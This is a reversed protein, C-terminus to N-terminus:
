ITHDNTNKDDTAWAWVRVQSEGSFTTCELKLKGGDDCDILLQIDTGNGTDSPGILVVNDNADGVTTDGSCARNGGVNTAMVETTWTASGNAAAIDGNVYSCAGRIQRGRWDNSDLTIIVEVDTINVTAGNGGGGTTAAGGATSYGTGSANLSISTVVGAAVTLVKVTANGDGGTVTLIDNVSYGEGGAGLTVAMVPGTGNAIRVWVDDVELAVDGFSQQDITVTADNNGVPGDQTVTAGVFTIKDCPEVKVSEGSHTITGIKIDEASPFDFKIYKTGSIALLKSHKKPDYQDKYEDIGLYDAGADGSSQVISIRGGADAIDMAYFPGVDTLNASDWDLHKVIKDGTADTEFAATKGGDDDGIWIGDGKYVLMEDEPVYYYRDDRGSVIGVIDDVAVPCVASANHKKFPYAEISGPTQQSHPPPIDGGGREVRKCYILPEDDISIVKALFSDGAGIVHESRVTVPFDPDQEEPPLMDEDPPLEDPPPVDDDLKKGPKRIYPPGVEKKKPPQEIDPEFKESVVPPGEAIPEPGIGTGQRNVSIDLIKDDNDELWEM